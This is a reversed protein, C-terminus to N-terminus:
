AEPTAAAERAAAQGEASGGGLGEAVFLSVNTSVGAEGAGLFAIGSFGSGEVEGLGIVLSGDGGAIGGVEGCVIAPADEDASRHAVIAHDEALLTELPLPVSTFSAAAPVARDAQGVGEGEPVTPETLVAVIEGLEGENCDGARIEAGRDGSDAVEPTAEQALPPAMGPLVGGALAAIM